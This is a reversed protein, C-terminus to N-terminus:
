AYSKEEVIDSGLLVNIKRKLAARQDNLMYVQRALHIFHADFRQEKECQRKGEEINWLSGNIILLERYADALDPAFGHPQLVKEIEWLEHQVNALKAPDTLRLKKTVLISHKDFVEGWSIPLLPTKM